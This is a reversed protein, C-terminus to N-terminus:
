QPPLNRSNIFGRLLFLLGGAAAVYPMASPPLTSPDISSLVGLAAMIGGIYKSGNQKGGTMTALVDKM